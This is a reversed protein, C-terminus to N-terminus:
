TGSVSFQLCPLSSSWLASITWRCIGILKRNQAVEVTILGANRAAAAIAKGTRFFALFCNAMSFKQLCVPNGLISSLFPLYCFFAGAKRVTGVLCVISDKVIRWRAFSLKPITPWISSDVGLKKAFMRLRERKREPGWTV